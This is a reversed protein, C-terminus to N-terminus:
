KISDKQPTKFIALLESIETDSIKAAIVYWSDEARLERFLLVIYM